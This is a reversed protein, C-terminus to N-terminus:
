RLPLDFTGAAGHAKRSAAGQVVPPAAQVGNGALDVPVFLPFCLGLTPCEYFDVSSVYPGPGVPSFKVNAICTGPGFFPGACTGFDFDFPSMWQATFVQYGTDITFTVSRTATTNIPVNGFDLRSPNAALVSVGTGEVSYVISPCFGIGGGVPCELITTTGTQPFNPDSPAFFSAIATCTGPGTFGGIGVCTGYSFGFPGSAGSGSVNAIYYGADITIAVNQTVSTNVPVNGFAVSPPNASGAVAPHSLVLALVCTLPIATSCVWGTTVNRM